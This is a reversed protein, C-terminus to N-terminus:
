GHTERSGRRKETIASAAKCCALSQKRFSVEPLKSAPEVKRAVLVKEYDNGGSNIWLLLFLRTHVMETLREIGWRERGSGAQIDVL